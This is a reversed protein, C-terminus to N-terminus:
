TLPKFIEVRKVANKVPDIEFFDINGITLETVTLKETWNPYLGFRLRTGIDLGFQQDQIGICEWIGYVGDRIEVGPCNWHINYSLWYPKIDYASLILGIMVDEHIFNKRVFNINISNFTINICMMANWSLIYTSAGIAFPVSEGKYPKKYWYSDEKVRNFHYEPVAENLIFQGIYDNSKLVSSHKSELDDMNKRSCFTDCDDMKLIHTYSSFRSDNFIFDIACIMKEPLGEYSDNCKLHLIKGDLHSYESGGCLIVMNDISRDLLQPWLHAHGKWSVVVLLIKIPTEM